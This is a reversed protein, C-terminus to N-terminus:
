GIKDKPFEPSTEKLNMEIFREIRVELIRIYSDMTELQITLLNQDQKEMEQFIPNEFFALLDDRKRTLEKLEIVVRHQHPLLAVENKM